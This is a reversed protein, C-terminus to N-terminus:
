FGGKLRICVLATVPSSTVVVLSVVHYTHQPQNDGTSILLVLLERQDRTRGERTKLNKVM